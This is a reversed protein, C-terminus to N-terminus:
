NYSVSEDVVIAVVNQRMDDSSLLIRGSTTNLLAEPHCLVLSFQGQIVDKLDVVTDLHYRCTSIEDDVSQQVTADSVNAKIDLRLASINLEKLHALQDKQIINLPSIVIVIPNKSGLNRYIEPLLHFIVSKSYGVTLNVLLDGDRRLLHMFVDRQKDRLEIGQKYNSTINNLIRDLEM